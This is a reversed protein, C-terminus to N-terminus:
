KACSTQRKEAILETFLLPRQVADSASAKIETATLSEARRDHTRRPCTGSLFKL